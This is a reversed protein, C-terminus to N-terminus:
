QWKEIDKTLTTKQGNRENSPSRLMWFFCSCFDVAASNAMYCWESFGNRQKSRSKLSKKM